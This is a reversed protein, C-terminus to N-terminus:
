NIAKLATCNSLSPQKTKTVFNEASVLLIVFYLWVSFVNLCEEFKTKEIM